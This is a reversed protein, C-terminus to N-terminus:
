VEGMQYVGQDVRAVAASGPESGPGCFAMEMPFEELAFGKTTVQESLTPQQGTKDTGPYRLRHM